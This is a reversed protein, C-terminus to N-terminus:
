NLWKAFKNTKTVLNAERKKIYFICIVPIFSAALMIWVLTTVSSESTLSAGTFAALLAGGGTMITGGIGSASGALHPRVSMMGSMANPLTMGNGVGVLVVFGFFMIPHPDESTSLLVLSTVLGVSALLAGFSIMQNLGIRRSYRGSLFNGVLYGIAPAGFYIGLVEAKLGFVESGVFAAGGLYAFYAGVASGASLCYAWFRPSSFLEPYTRFQAGFSSSRNNNTEGMDFFILVLALIGLGLMVWFSSVWSYQSELWGGLAPSAMPVVAMCMTMYGMQSAATEPDYMDRIAARSLVLGAVVAAQIGRMVILIEVTPAAIAGVTAICFTAIAALAVPRRGFRDSCPGLVFQFAANMGLFVTLTLQVKAYSTNIDQAMTNLSPLFMNMAMAALGAMVVLTVLTPHTSRNLFM